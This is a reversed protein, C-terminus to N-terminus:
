SNYVGRLEMTTCEFLEAAQDITLYNIEGHRIMFGLIEDETKYEEHLVWALEIAPYGEAKIQDRVQLLSMGQENMMQEVKAATYNSQKGTQPRNDTGQEPDTPTDSDTSDEPDDPTQGGTTEDGPLDALFIQYLIMMGNMDNSVEFFNALTTQDTYDKGGGYDELFGLIQDQTKYKQKLIWALETAPYGKEKIRDRVQELTLGEDNLWGEVEEVTIDSQPGQQGAGGNSGSGFIGEVGTSIEEDIVPPVYEADKELLYYHLIVMNGMITKNAPNYQMSLTYVSAYFDDNDNFYAILNKVGEYTAYYPISYVEYCLLMGNSLQVHQYDQGYNVTQMRIGTEAEIKMIFLIDDEEKSERPFSTLKDITDQLFVNDEPNAKVYATIAAMAEMCYTDQEIVPASELKGYMEEINLKNKEIHDYLQALKSSLEDYKKQLENKKAQAEPVLGGTTVTETIVQGNEDERTVETTAGKYVAIEERLKSVGLEEIRTDISSVKGNVSTICSEAKDEQKVVDSLDAETYGLETLLASVNEDAAYLEKIEKEVAAGENKLNKHKNEMARLVMDTLEDDVNMTPFVESLTLSLEMRNKLRQDALEKNSTRVPNYVLFITGFLLIAGMFVFAAALAAQMALKSKDQPTKEYSGMDPKGQADSKSAKSFGWSSQKKGQTPAASQADSQVAAQDPQADLQAQAAQAAQKAQLKQEELKKNLNQNKKKQEAAKKKNKAAAKKKKNYVSNQKKKNYIGSQQKKYRPKKGRLDRFDNKNTDKM